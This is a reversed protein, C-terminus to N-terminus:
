ANDQLPKALGSGPLVKSVIQEMFIGVGEAAGARGICREQGKRLCFCLFVLLIYKIATLARFCNCLLFRSCARVKRMADSPNRWDMGKYPHKRVAKIEEQKKDHESLVEEIAAVRERYRDGDEERGQYHYAM